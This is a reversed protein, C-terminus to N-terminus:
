PSAVSAIQDNVANVCILFVDGMGMSYAGWRLGCRSVVDTDVDHYWM